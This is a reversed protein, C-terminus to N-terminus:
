FVFAPAEQTNLLRPLDTDFVSRESWDQADIRTLVTAQMAPSQGVVAVLRGGVALNDRHGAPIAPVSGTLVIADFPAGNDWANAADGIQLHVNNIGQAGLKQQAAKSLDAHIEVSVVEAALKALLATLYGSGTGVELVRDTSKLDLEQLLRAELKPEMMVQDHGIPINMDVFALKRYQQPVFDERRVDGILALVRPDLVEWPRIQQEIMNHRALEFDM